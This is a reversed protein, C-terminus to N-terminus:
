KYKRQFSLLEQAVKVTNSSCDLFNREERRGRSGCGRDLATHGAHGLFIEIGLERKIKSAQKNQMEVLLDAKQNEVIKGHDTNTLIHM